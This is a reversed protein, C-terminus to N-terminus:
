FLKQEVYKSSVFFHVVIKENWSSKIKAVSAWSKKYICAQVFIFVFIPYFTSCQLHKIKLNSHNTYSICTATFRNIVLLTWFYFHCIIANENADCLIQPCSNGLILNIGLLFTCKGYVIRNEISNFYRMWYVVMSLKIVSIWRCCRKNEYSYMSNNSNKNYWIQFIFFTTWRMFRGYSDANEAFTLAVVDSNMNISIYKSHLRHPELIRFKEKNSYM